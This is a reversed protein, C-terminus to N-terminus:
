RRGSLYVEYRDYPIKGHFKFEKSLSAGPKLENDNDVIYNREYGVLQEGSFFLVMGEVFEAAKEGNNTCTVIIKNETDSDEHTLDSLVSEFRNDEKVSLNYEFQSDASVGDFFNMLCAEYGSGIAYCDSSAAGITNGESNKATANIEASITKESNNKLIIIYYTDGFSNETYLERVEVQNNLDQQIEPEKQKEQVNENNKLELNFTNSDDTQQTSDNIALESELSAYEECLNDYNKQLEDREKVVKNYAEQSIGNSGCGESFLM